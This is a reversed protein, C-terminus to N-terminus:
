RLYHRLVVDLRSHGLANSVYKVAAVDYSGPTLRGTASPLERGPAQSLYLAQAFDRRYAHVDLHRPIRPFVLDEDVLGEKMQLVAHEYGALVPVTRAKGGKGNWVHVVTQGYLPSVPDTEQDVIDRARLMKLEDRRLGTAQLFTILTPWNMPNFDQDHAKPGRSRTITERTRRPLQVEQMLTHDAFVMRLASRITLLTSASKGEEMKAQLFAATLARLREDLEEIRKIGYCERVWHTFNLAHEQYVARTKYSHIKGTTFAWTKQHAARAEEKAKGRSQELAMCADLRDMVEKILSKRHSALTGEGKGLVPAISTFIARLSM